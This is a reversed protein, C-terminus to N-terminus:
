RTHKRKLCDIFNSKMSDPLVEWIRLRASALRSYFKRTSCGLEEALESVPTKFGSGALTVLAQFQKQSFIHRISELKELMQFQEDEDECFPGELAEAAFMISASPDNSADMQDVDLHFWEDSDSASRKPCTLYVRGDEFSLDTHIGPVERRQRIYELVRTRAMSKLIGLIAQKRVQGESHLHENKLRQIERHCIDWFIGALDDMEYDTLPGMRSTIQSVYRRYNSYILIGVDINAFEEDSLKAIDFFDVSIGQSFAASAM